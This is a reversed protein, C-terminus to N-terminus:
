ETTGPHALHCCVRGRPLGPGASAFDHDRDLGPVPIRPTLQSAYLWTVYEGAHCGPKIHTYLGTARLKAACEECLDIRVEELDGTNLTDETM